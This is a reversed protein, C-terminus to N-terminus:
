KAFLKASAEAISGRSPPTIKSRVVENCAATHPCFACANKHVGEPELQDAATATMIMKARDELRQALDHDFPLEFVNIQEYDSANIYVLLSGECVRNLNHELLDANQNCQWVHDEQPLMSVKKRPDISKVELVKFATSSLMFAGDPTGSQHGRVFSRQNSGAFLLPVAAKLGRTLNDVFWAEITHGREFYGYGQRPKSTGEEPSYKGERMVKKDFFVQRACRAIESATVFNRRDLSLGTDHRPWLNPKQWAVGAGVAAKIIKGDIM